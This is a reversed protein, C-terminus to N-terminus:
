RGRGDAPSVRDMQLRARALATLHLRLPCLHTNLPPEAPSVVHPPFPPTEAARRGKSNKLTVLWVGPLGGQRLPDSGRPLLERTQQRSNPCSSAAGRLFSHSDRCLLSVWPRALIFMVCCTTPFAFVCRSLGWLTLKTQEVRDARLALAVSTRSRVPVHHCALQPDLCLAGPLAM